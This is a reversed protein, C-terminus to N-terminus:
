EKLFRIVANMRSQSVKSSEVEMQKANQKTIMHKIYRELKRLGINPNTEKLMEELVASSLGSTVLLEVQNPKYFKSYCKRAFYMCDTDVIPEAFAKVQEISLGNLFGRGIQSMQELSLEPDAIVKLQEIDLINTYNKFLYELQGVDLRREVLLKVHLYPTTDLAEYIAEAQNYFLSPDAYLEIKEKNWKKELGKRILDMIAIDCDTRNCYYEVQERTLGNEYGERMEQKVWGRYLESACHLVQEDTLGHELCLRIEKMEGHTNNVNLYMMVQENILGNKYGEAVQKLQESDYGNLECDLKLKQLDMGNELCIRIYKMQVCSYGVKFYSNIQEFTLGNKIGELVEIIETDYFAYEKCINLLYEKVGEQKLYDRWQKGFVGIAVKAMSKINEEYEEKEHAVSIAYNKMTNM